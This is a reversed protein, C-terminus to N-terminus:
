EEDANKPIPLASLIADAEEQTLTGDDVLGALVTDLGAASGSGRADKMANQVAQAQEETITGDKVLKNLGLMGRRGWGGHGSNGAGSSRCSSDQGSADSGGNRSEADGSSKGANSYKAACSHLTVPGDVAGSAAGATTATAVALLMSATLLAGVTKVRKKM